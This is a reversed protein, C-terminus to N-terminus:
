TVRTSLPGEPLQNINSWNLAEMTANGDDNGSSEVNGYDFCCRSNYPKGDAVMYMAEPEDNQAVGPCGGADPGSNRYTINSGETHYVGYVSHGGVTIKAATANAPTGGMPLWHVPPSVPLHNHRPSQDFIISITCTTGM